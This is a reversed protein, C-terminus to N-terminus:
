RCATGPKLMELRRLWFCAVYVLGIAAAPLIPLAHRAEYHVLSFVLSVGVFSFWLFAIASWERSLGHSPQRSVRFLVYPTGLLYASFAIASVIEGILSLVMLLLMTPSFSHRLEAINRTSFGPIRWGLEPAGLEFYQDITAIPDAILEGLAFYNFNRLVIRAFALPQQEIVSLYKARFQSQMQTPTCRCHQHLDDIFKLQSEFGYDTMTERVTQSILSDDAFPQATGATAMDFAPRLWNEVGTISFVAEGTRHLNLLVIASAMAATVLGFAFLRALVGRWQLRSHAAILGFLIVPLVTFYIGVDRVWISAGWIFGLGLCRGAGLRWCGVLDGILAFIVINWLSGYLSDSLIANDWLLSTSGAYVLVAVMAAWPSRLLRTSVAFMLYIAVGNILGQLTAAVMAYGGPSILMAVALFLPYGLPRFIFLPVAQAGWDLPAFARGHDLIARAYAIYGASDPLLSPGNLALIVCKVAAVITLTVLLPPSVFLRRAIASSADTM